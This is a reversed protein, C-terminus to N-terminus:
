GVALGNVGVADGLAPVSPSPRGDDAGAPALTRFPLKKPRETPKLSGVFLCLAIEDARPPLPAMLSLLATLPISASSTLSPLRTEGGRRPEVVSALLQRSHGDSQVTLSSAARSTESGSPHLAVSHAQLGCTDPLM